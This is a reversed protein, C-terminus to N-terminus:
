VELLGDRALVGSSSFDRVYINTGPRAQKLARALAFADDRDAPDFYRVQNTDPVRSLQEVGDAGDVNPWGLDTLAQSLPAYDGQAVRPGVHIFIPGTDYPTARPEVTDAQALWLREPGWESGAQAVQFPAFPALEVQVAPFLRDECVEPLEWLLRVYCAPPPLRGSIKLASDILGALFLIFFSTFVWGLVFRMRDNTVVFTILTVLFALALIYCAVIFAHQSDGLWSIAISSLALLGLGALLFVAVPKNVKLLTQFAAVPTM